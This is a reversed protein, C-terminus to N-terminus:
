MLALVYDLEGSCSKVMDPKWGDGNPSLLAIFESADEMAGCELCPDSPM